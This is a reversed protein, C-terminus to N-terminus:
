KAISALYPLVAKSYHPEQVGWFVYDVRLSDRAFASLEAVTVRDGTAPNADDLNGWQVALGAPM